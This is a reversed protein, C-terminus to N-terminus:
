SSSDLNNRCFDLHITFRAYLLLLTSNVTVGIKKKQTQMNKFINVHSDCISSLYKKKVNEQFTRYLQPHSKCM